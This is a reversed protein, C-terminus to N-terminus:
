PLLFLGLVHIFSPTIFTDKIGRIIWWKRGFHLESMWSRDLIMLINTKPSIKQVWINLCLSPLHGVVEYIKGRVLLIKLVPFWNLLTINEWRSFPPFFPTSATIHAITATKHCNQCEQSYDFLDRRLIICNIHTLQNKFPLFLSILSPKAGLFWTKLNFFCFLVCDAFMMCADLSESKRGALCTLSLRQQNRAKDPVM